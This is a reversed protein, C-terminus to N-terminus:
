VPVTTVSSGRRGPCGRNSCPCPGDASTCVCVDRRCYGPPSRRPIKFLRPMPRSFASLLAWCCRRGVGYLGDLWAVFPPALSVTANTLIPQATAALTEYRGRAALGGRRRRIRPRQRRECIRDGRRRHRSACPPCVCPLPAPPAATPRNSRHMARRSAPVCSRLLPRRAPRTRAGLLRTCATIGRCGQAPVRGANGRPSLATWCCARPGEDNSRMWAAEPYRGLLELMFSSAGRGPRLAQCGSGRATLITEFSDALCGGRDDTAAYM